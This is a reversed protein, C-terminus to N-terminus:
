LEGQFVHRQLTESFDNIRKRSAAQELQLARIRVVEEVFRTQEELPPLPILLERLIELNLNARAADPANALLLLRRARLVHELYETLCCKPDAQIGVISDTCYM